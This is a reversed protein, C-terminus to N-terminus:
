LFSWGFGFNFIPVGSSTLFGIDGIEETVSQTGDDNTIVITEPLNGFGYGAEIRFYFTRGLKAGIKLNITSFEITTKGSDVTGDDFETEIINTIKSNFNFYGTGLYLGRGKESLYINAGIELNNLKVDSDSINASFPFYDLTFAIRNNLLPTVYEATLTAISPVGIKVGIRLPKISEKTETIEDGENNNSDSEQSYVNSSFIILVILLPISLIHRLPKM